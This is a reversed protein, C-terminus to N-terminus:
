KITYILEGYVNQRNLIGQTRLCELYKKVDYYCLKVDFEFKLIGKIDDIGTCVDLQGIEVAKIVTKLTKKSFTFPLGGLERMDKENLIYKM